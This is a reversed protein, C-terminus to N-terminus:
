LVTFIEWTRSDVKRSLDAIIGGALESKGVVSKRKM